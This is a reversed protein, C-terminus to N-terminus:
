KVLMLYIRKDESLERMRLTVAEFGDIKDEDQLYQVPPGIQVNIKQTRCSFTTSIEYSIDM